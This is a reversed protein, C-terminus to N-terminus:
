QFTIPVNHLGFPMRNFANKGWPMCFATKAISEQDIPVQYYVRKLDLKTSWNAKAVEDLM